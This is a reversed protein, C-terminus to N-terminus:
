VPETNRGSKGGMFTGSSDESILTVFGDDLSRPDAPDHKFTQDLVRRVQEIRGAHRFWM